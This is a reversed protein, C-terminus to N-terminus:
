NPYRAEVWAVCGAWADDGGFVSSIGVVGATRVAIAGAVIATRRGGALVDIQADGLLAPRILGSPLGAASSWGDLGCADDVRSWALGSPAVAPRAGPQRVIWDAEFLVEFGST